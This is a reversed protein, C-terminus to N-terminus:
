RNIRVSIGGGSSFGRSSSVLGGGGLGVGNMMVGGRFPNVYVPSPGRPLVIIPSYAPPTGNIIIRQSQQYLIPGSVSPIGVWSPGGVVVGGMGTTITRASRFAISAQWNDKVLDFTVGTTNFRTHTRALRDYGNVWALFPTNGYGIVMPSYWPGYLVTQGYGVGGSNLMKILLHLHNPYEKGYFFYSEKAGDSWRLIYTQDVGSFLSIASEFIRGDKRRIKVIQSEEDYSLISADM